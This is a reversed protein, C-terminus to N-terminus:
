EDHPRNSWSESFSLLPGADSPEWSTSLAIRGLRTRTIPTTDQPDTPSTRAKGNRFDNADDAGASAKAEDEDAKAPSADRMEIQTEFAAMESMGRKVDLRVSLHGCNTMSAGEDKRMAFLHRAAKSQTAVFVVEGGVRGAYLHVGVAREGLDRLPLEATAHERAGGSQVDIWFDRSELVPGQAGLVLQEIHLQQVRDKLQFKGDGDQSRMLQTETTMGGTWHDPPQDDGELKETVLRGRGRRVMRTPGRHNDVNATDLCLMQRGPTSHDEEGDTDSAGAAATPKADEIQIISQTRLGYRENSRKLTVGAIKGGAPLAAPTGSWDQDLLKGQPLSALPVDISVRSLPLAVPAPNAAAANGLPESASAVSSAGVLALVVVLGPKM